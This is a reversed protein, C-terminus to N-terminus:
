ETPRGASSCGETAAATATRVASGVEARMRIQPESCKAPVTSASLPQDDRIVPMGAFSDGCFMVIASQLASVAPNRYPLRLILVVINSRSRQSVAM